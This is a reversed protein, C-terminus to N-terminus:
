CYARATACCMRGGRGEYIHSASSNRELMRQCLLEFTRGFRQGRCEAFGRDSLIETGDV